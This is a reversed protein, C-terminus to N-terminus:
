AHLHYASAHKQRRRTTHMDTHLHLEKAVESFTSCHKTAVRLWCRVKTFYFGISGTTHGLRVKAAQVQTFHQISPLVFPMKVQAPGSEQQSVGPISVLERQQEVAPCLEAHYGDGASYVESDYLRHEDRFLVM